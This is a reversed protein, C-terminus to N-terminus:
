GTTVAAVDAKVNEITREPVPPGVLRLEEIGAKALVATGGGLLATAVAASTTPPLFRDLFRVLVVASTGAALAGLVAAGGLMAAAPRAALAKETMEQRAHAVEGRVLDQVNDTLTRLLEGTSSDSPDPRDSRPPVTAAADGISTTADPNAPPLTPGPDTTVTPGRTRM